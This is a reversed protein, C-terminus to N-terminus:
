FLFRRGFTGGFGLGMFITTLWVTMPLAPDTAPAVPSAAETSPTLLNATRAIGKIFGGLGTVPPRPVVITHTDTRTLGEGRVTATNRISSGQTVNDKIRVRYRVVTTSNARLTGLDWRLEGGADSGGGPDAITMMSEPYDDNLTANKIDRNGTNRITITYSAFSGALAETRDATKDITLDPQSPPTDEDDDGCNRNRVRTIETDEDGGSVAARLRLTDGDRVESDVRVRVRLTRSSNRSVKINDWEVRDGSREKGGDSSSRYETDSDLSAVVDVTENSNNSNTLRIDYELDDDNCVDIPDPDDNVSISVDDNNDDDDDNVDITTSDDDCLGGSVCATNRIIDGDDTNNNVRVSMGLTKSSGAALTFTWTVTSGNRVGSNDASLFDVDNPINDTVVVNTADQSGTNRVTIVYNLTEDPVASTKNDTKDITFNPTGVPDQRNKFTVTVCNSGEHVVVRGNTPTVLQQTWGNPIDESVTHTGVPVNTFRANGNSDNHVTDDSGNLFFTFQTVPTLTTGNSNFTEKQIDICGVIPEDVVVVTTDADDPGNTIEVINYVLDGDEADTDVTVELTFAVAEGADIDRVWTVKGSAYSGGLNADEFTVNLPLTDIIEVDTADTGSTNTVVIDYILTESPRAITKHDTKSITFTPDNEVVITTDDDCPGGDICAKNYVSDGDNTDSDVTVGLHLTISEGALLDTIWVITNGIHNASNVGLPSSATNFSVNHPLTDIIEVDEADIHSTNTVVIDYFNQEGPEITSRNDTKQITFTPHEVIVTTTDTDSDGGTIAVHNYLFEGNEADNNVRAQVTLHITEGADIDLEWLITHTTNEYDGNLNASIFTVYSPLADIIEVDTADFNSQNTLEIEYNLIDGRKATTRNDTKSITLVPDSCLVDTRVPNSWQPDVGPHNSWVDAINTIISDCPATDEVKLTLTFTKSAGANLDFEGCIVEDTQSEYYCSNDNARVFTLHDPVPDIVRNRTTNFGLNNTVVITYSIENGRVITSPGSKVVDLTQTACNVTSAASDDNNSLLPDHTTSEVEAENIIAASCEAISPIDFVIRGTDYTNAQLTGITCIVSGGSVYCASDSQASNFILDTRSNSSQIKVDPIADIIQVNQATDPGNNDVRLTYEITSGRFVQAPATKSISLDAEPDQCEVYTQVQNTNGTLNGNDMFVVQATNYINANCTAYTNIDFVLKYTDDDYPDIEDDGCKVDNGSKFCRSDSLGSNFTLGTPITDIVWTGGLTVTGTNEIKIEYTLRDGVQATSKNVTKTATFEPQPVEVTTTDTDSDGGTIAVTNYLVTGNNTTNKVSVLVTVRETDNGDIDLNWRVTRSAGNYTGGASASIFSVQPPLTDIIEINTADFNSSNTIDIEYELMDGRLATTRNDTKTISLVPNNCLVDTRVANSWQPDVGPHNSWVDAINTITSSCAITDKVKFTLVFTRSKGDDLDFHGCVVENTQGEYRCISDNARLYQLNNPVPDILRNDIADFGLNNTVVITYSIENGRVITSPGSKVVDLTQTACNVTSAAEDDNNGSIPDTTDSSVVAENIVVASCESNGPINFVINLNETANNNITSINCVVDNGSTYCRNDSQANNFVLDVRSNSSQVKVDPIADTIQVNHAADPGNNHIQISYSVTSGRFIQSPATKSISLDAVGTGNREDDDTPDTCGSDAPYDIQGDGDDDKGNDCDPGSSNTETDDKASSCGPDNPYDTLGDGDNDIGDSCIPQQVETLEVPKCRYLAISDVLDIPHNDQNRNANFHDYTIGTLLEDNGCARIVTGQANGSQLSPIPPESTIPGVGDNSVSRCTITVGDTHDSIGSSYTLGKYKVASAATGSPCTVREENSSNGSFDSGIRQDEENSSDVTGDDLLPSCGIGVADVSEQYSGNDAEKFFISTVVNGNDCDLDQELISPTASPSLSDGLQAPENTSGLTVTNIAYTSDIPAIPIPFVGTSFQTIVLGLLTINAWLRKFRRNEM